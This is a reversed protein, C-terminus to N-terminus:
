PGTEVAAAGSVEQEIPGAPHEIRVRVAGSLSLRARGTTGGVAVTGSGGADVALAGITGSRVAIRTDGSLGLTMASAALADITVRSRGAADIRLDGDVRGLTAATDGSLDLSTAAAAADTLTTRGSLDASLPGGVAGIRYTAAGSDDLGLRAAAPVRVTLRLTPTWASAGVPQWCRAALARPHLSTGAGSAEFVLRSIEEAHDAHAQVSVTAAPAGPMITVTAACPSSIALETGAGNWVHDEARAIAGHAVVPVLVVLIQSIKM